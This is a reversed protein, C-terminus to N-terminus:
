TKVGGIGLTTGDGMGFGCSEDENDCPEITIVIKSTSDITPLDIASIINNIKEAIWTTNTCIPRGSDTITIVAKHSQYRNAYLKNPKPRTYVPCRPTFCKYKPFGEAYYGCKYCVKKM